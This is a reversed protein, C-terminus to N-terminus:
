GLLDDMWSSNTTTTEATQETSNNDSVLLSDGFLNVDSPEFVPLLQTESAFIDGAFIDPQAVPTATFSTDSGLFDNLSISTALTSPLVSLVDTSSSSDGVGFIDDPFACVQNTSAEAGAQDPVNVTPPQSSLTDNSSFINFDPDQERIQSNTTFPSATQDDDQNIHALDPVILQDTMGLMVENEALITQADLMGCTDAPAADSLATVSQSFSFTDWPTNVFMEQSVPPGFVNASDQPLEHTLDLLAGSYLNRGVLDPADLLENPKQTSEDTNIQIALPDVSASNVSDVLINDNFLAGSDEDGSKEAILQNVSEETAQSVSQVAIPFDKSQTIGSDTGSLGISESSQSNSEQDDTPNTDTQGPAKLDDQTEKTSTKVLNSPETSKSVAENKNSGLTNPEVSHSKEKNEGTEQEQPPVESMNGKKQMEKTIEEKIEDTKKDDAQTKDNREDQTSSKTTDKESSSQFLRGLLGGIQKVDTKKADKSEVRNTKESGGSTFLKSLPSKGKSWSGLKVKTKESPKASGTLSNTRAIPKKQSGGNETDTKEFPSKNKELCDEEGTMHELPSHPTIESKCSSVSNKPIVDSIEPPEQHKVVEKSSNFTETFSHTELSEEVQDVGRNLVTIDTQPIEKSSEVKVDPEQNSTNNTKGHDKHEPIELYVEHQSEEKSFDLSLHDFNSKDSVDKLDNSKNVKSQETQGSVQMGHEEGKAGVTLQSSLDYQAVNPAFRVSKRSKNPHTDLRISIPSYNTKSTPAVNKQELTQNTVTIGKELSPLSCNLVTPSITDQFHWAKTPKTEESPLKEASYYGTTNPREKVGSIFSSPLTKVKDKIEGGHNIKLQKNDSKHHELLNISYTPAKGIDSIKNKVYTQQAPVGTSKKEPPWSMKLKGKVDAGSNYLPERGSLKTVFVGASSLRSGDSTNLYSKTLKPSSVADAEGTGKNKQLWHDKHQKHGIGEDYNRKRLFLQQYHPICYFEGYLSSYNHISLKKKCQKCCFCNNHLLVKNAVMKEMPYVPTLCASCM